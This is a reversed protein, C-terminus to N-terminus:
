NFFDNGNGGTDSGDTGGTNGGSSSDGDGTSDDSNYDTNDDFSGSGSTSVYDYRDGTGSNFTVDGTANTLEGTTPNQYIIEGVPGTGVQVGDIAPDYAQEDGGGDSSSECGVSGMMLMGMMTTVAARKAITTGTMKKRRISEYVLTFLRSIMRGIEYTYRSIENNMTTEKRSATKKNGNTHNTM